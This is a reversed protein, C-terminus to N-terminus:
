CTRSPRLKFARRLQKQRPRWPKLRSRRSRSRTMVATRSWVSGSWRSRPGLPPRFAQLVGRPEAEEAGARQGRLPRSAVAVPGAGHSLSGELTMGVLDEGVVLFLDSSPIFGRHGWGKSGWPERAGSLHLAAWWGSRRAFSAEFTAALPRCRPAWPVDLGQM